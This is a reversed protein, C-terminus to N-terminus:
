GLLDPGSLVAADDPVRRLPHTTELELEHALPSQNWAIV